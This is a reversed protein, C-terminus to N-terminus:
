VSPESLQDRQGGVREGEYKEIREEGVLCNLHHHVVHLIETHVGVLCGLIKDTLGHLFAGLVIHRDHDDEELLSGQHGATLRAPFDAAYDTPCPPVKFLQGLSLTVQSPDLLAFHSQTHVSAMNNSVSSWRQSSLSHTATAVSTHTYTFTLTHYLSSKVFVFLADRRTGESFLRIHLGAQFPPPIM